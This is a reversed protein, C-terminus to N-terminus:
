NLNRVQKLPIEIEFTTGEGLVSLCRIQGGHKEVIVQHCISLGLGTGTGVPKTTFFPAFVRQRIEETMGNGNDAIRIVVLNGEKLETQIRITSPRAQIEDLSRHHDGDDLADIANIFINMFVQNLEGAYCEVNPIQGYERIIKLGSHAIKERIRNQLILLSNEIGEHIDVEKVDSEDLRAFNRVSIIIQRIREAGIRMSDLMSPLDEKILDLEKDAIQAQIEASPSQYEQEYLQILELLSAVYDRTHTLNGYIFNIPNNIEHALGAVMQGLSSIKETQILQAQAKKLNSMAKELQTSQEKLRQNKSQLIFTRKEVKQELTRSYEALQENVGKLNNTARDLDAYLLANELAIAVQTSLIMLAELQEPTFIESVLNNELYLLGIFKGQNIIPTCLLSKPQNRVIYPDEAFREEKTGDNFVLSQRTRYVYNILSLPLNPNNDVAIPRDVLIQNQEGSGNAIVVLKQNQELILYSIEASTNEMLIRLFKDLLKELVIESTITQSAKIIAMLDLSLNPNDITLTKATYNIDSEQNELVIEEATKLILQPYSNELDKVKATAGWQSYAHCADMLYIKAIKLRNRGLYFKAALENAIAEDQIYEHAKASEIARDYLEIAKLYQGEIRAIEATILLYKHLFNEQCNDAWIKMKAQNKALIDTFKDQEEPSVQFYAGTLILSYYFYYEPETMLGKQADGTHAYENIIKLAESYNNFLFLIQIKHQQYFRLQFNPDELQMARNIFEQEDFGASSLSYKDNTLGKLNLILHRSLNWVDRFPVTQQLIIAYKELEEAITDLNNGLAIKTLIIWYCSSLTYALDRFDLSYFYSDQLFDISLKLHEQWFVVGIGYWFNIKSKLKDNNIEKEVRFAFNGFKYATQYDEFVSVAVLSYNCFADPSEQTFGHKFFLNIMKLTTWAFMKKNKTQYDLLALDGLLKTTTQKDLDSMYFKVIRDDSDVGNINSQAEALEANILLQIEEQAQPVNFDLM